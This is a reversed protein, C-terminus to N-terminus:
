LIEYRGVGTTMSGEAPQWGRSEGTLTLVARDRFENGSWGFVFWSNSGTLSVSVTVETDPAAGYEAFFSTEYDYCAPPEQLEHPFDCRGETLNVKPLLVTSNGVPCRTDILEDAEAEVILRVPVPVPLVGAAPTPGEEPDAPVPAPRYGPEIRGATIKLFTAKGTGYVGTQWGNPLGYVDGRGLDTVVPSRGGNDPLPLFLTVNSLSADTEVTVEYTYTSSLTREYMVGAYGFLGIFGGALVLAIGLILILNQLARDM